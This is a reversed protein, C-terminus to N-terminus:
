SNQFAVGLAVADFIAMRYDESTWPLRKRPVLYGLEDPFREALLEALAHKTGTEAGFFHKRVEKTSLAKMQVGAGKISAALAKGLSRIRPSHHSARYDETLLFAPAYQSILDEVKELSGVNKDGLVNKVGWDILTAEGELVAFGVGRTNPAIALIRHQRTPLSMM